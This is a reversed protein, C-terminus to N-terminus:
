SGLTYTFKTSGWVVPLVRYHNVALGDIILRAADVVPGAFVDDGNLEVAASM